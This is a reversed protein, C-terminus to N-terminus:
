LYKAEFTATACSFGVSERFLNWPDGDEDYVKGAVSGLARGSLIQYRVGPKFTKRIGQLDHRVGTCLITKTKVAIFEAGGDSKIVGNEAVSLWVRRRKSPIDARAIMVSCGKETLSGVYMRDKEFSGLGPVSTCVLNVKSM